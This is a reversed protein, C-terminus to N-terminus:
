EQPKPNYLSSIEAGTVMHIQEWGRFRNTHKACGGTKGFALDYVAQHNEAIMTKGAPLDFSLGVLGNAVADKDTTGVKQVAARFINIAAYAHYAAYSPVVGSRGFEQYSKVFRLNEPNDYAEYWYTSGFWVGKPMNLFGLSMFVEVAGGVPFLIAKKEQLLKSRNAAKLFSAVDTGWLSLMVGEADSKRLRSIVSEWDRTGLPVLIADDFQWEGLRNLAAKFVKWTEQGYGYNPGVSTWKKAGFSKAQIAAAAYCQTNSCGSRFTWKNGLEGIVADTQANSIILPTKLENMLPAVAKAVSSSVFGIVVDVGDETVVKRVVQKAVDPKVKSDGIVLEVKRGLIGGSQNIEQVALKAGQLATLGFPAMKGSLVHVFGIKITQSLGIIPIFLLLVTIILVKRAM